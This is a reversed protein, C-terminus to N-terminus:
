ILEPLSETISCNHAWWMFLALFLCLQIEHQLEPYTLCVKKKCIDSSAESSFLYKQSWTNRLFNCISMKMVIYTSFLLITFCSALPVLKVGRMNGARILYHHLWNLVYIFKPLSGRIRLNTILLGTLCARNLRACCARNRWTLHGPWM